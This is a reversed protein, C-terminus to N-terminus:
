KRYSKIKEPIMLLSLDRGTVVSPNVIRVLVMFMIRCSSLLTWNLMLINIELGFGDHSLSKESSM